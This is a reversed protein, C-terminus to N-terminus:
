EKAEKYRLSLIWNQTKPNERVRIWLLNEKNAESLMKLAGDMSSARTTITTWREHSTEKQIVTM